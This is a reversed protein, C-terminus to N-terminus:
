GKTLDDKFQGLVALDRSISALLPGRCEDVESLALECIKQFIGKSAIGLCDHNAREIGM